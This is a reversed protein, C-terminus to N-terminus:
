LFTVAFAGPLHIVPLKGNLYYAMQFSVGSERRKPAPSPPNRKLM